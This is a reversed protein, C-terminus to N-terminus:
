YFVAGYQSLHIVDLILWLKMKGAKKEASDNVM